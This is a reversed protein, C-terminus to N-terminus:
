PNCRGPRPAVAWAVLLGSMTSLLVPGPSGPRTSYVDGQSRHTTYDSSSTASTAQHPLRSALPPMRRNRHTPTASAYARGQGGWTAPAPQRTPWATRRTHDFPPKLCSSTPPESRRTRVQTSVTIPRARPADRRAATREKILSLAVFGHVKRSLICPKTASEAIKSAVLPPGPGCGGVWRWGHLWTPRVVRAAEESVTPLPVDTVSLQAWDRV